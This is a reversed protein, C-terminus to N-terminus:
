SKMLIAYITDTCSLRLTCHLRHRDTKEQMKDKLELRFAGFKIKPPLYSFNVYTAWITKAHSCFSSTM